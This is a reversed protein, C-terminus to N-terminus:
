EYQITYIQLILNSKRKSVHEHKNKIFESDPSREKEKIRLPIPTTSFEGKAIIKVQVIWFSVPFLLYM